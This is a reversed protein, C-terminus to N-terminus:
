LSLRTVFTPLSPYLLHEAVPTEFQAEFWACYSIALMALRGHKLEATQMRIRDESQAPYLGLPDFKGDGPTGDLGFNSTEFATFELSASSAFVLLWFWPSVAGMGGNLLSPNVGGPNLISPLELVRCITPHLLEATPWGLVAMMAVRGHKVEAERYTALVVEDQALWLPDFGVNGPIGPQDRLGPSVDLFPVAQSKVTSGTSSLGASSGPEPPSNFLLEPEPSAGILAVVERFTLGDLAQGNVQVLLDGKNVGELGVAGAQVDKVRVGPSSPQAEELVLGLPRRLTVLKLAAVPSLLLATLLLLSPPPSLSARM